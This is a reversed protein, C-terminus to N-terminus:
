EWPHLRPPLVRGEVHRDEDDGVLRALGQDLLSARGVGEDGTANCAGAGLRLCGCTVLIDQQPAARVDNSLEELSSQKVLQLEVEDGHQEAAADSQEVPHTRLGNFEFGHPHDVGRPDAMESETDHLSVYAM